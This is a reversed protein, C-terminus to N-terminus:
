WTSIPELFPKTYELSVSSVANHCLYHAGSAKELVFFLLGTLRIISVKKHFPMRTTQLQVIVKQLEQILISRRRNLSHFVQVLMSYNMSVQSCSIHQHLSVVMYLHSIKSKRLQEVIALLLHLDHFSLYSIEKLFASCSVLWQNEPQWWTAPAPTASLGSSCEGCRHTPTRRSTSPFGWRRAPEPNLEFKMNRSLM